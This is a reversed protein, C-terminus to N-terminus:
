LLITQVCLYDKLPMWKSAKEIRGRRYKEAQGPITDLLIRAEDIKDTIKQELFDYIFVVGLEDQVCAITTPGLDTLGSVENLIEPLIIREIPKEFNYDLISPPKAMFSLVCFSVLLVPLLQYM